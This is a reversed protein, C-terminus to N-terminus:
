GLFIPQLQLSRMIDVCRLLILSQYLDLEDLLARLSAFHDQMSSDRMELTFIQEYIKIGWSINKEYGYMLKLVDWIKKALRLITVGRAVTPEMSNVM